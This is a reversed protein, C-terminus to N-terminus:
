EKKTCDLDSYRYVQELLNAKYEVKNYQEKLHLFATYLLYNNYALKTTLVLLVVILFTKFKEMQGRELKTM